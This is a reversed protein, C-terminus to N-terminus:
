PIQGHGLGGEDDEFDTRGARDRQEADEGGLGATRGLDGGDAGGAGGAHALALDDGRLGDGGGDGADEFAEGFRAADVDVLEVEDIGAAVELAHGDVAARRDVGVVAFHVLVVHVGRDGVHAVRGNRAAAGRQLVDLAVVDEVALADDLVGDGEGGGFQGDVADAGVDVGVAGAGDDGGDFLGAAVDGGDEAGSGGGGEAARGGLLAAVADEDDVEAAAGGGPADHAVVLGGGDAVEGDAAVM